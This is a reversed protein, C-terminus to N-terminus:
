YENYNKLYPKIDLKAANYLINALKGNGFFDFVDSIYTTEKTYNDLDDQRLAIIKCYYVVEHNSNEVVKLTIIDFVDTKFKVPMDFEDYYQTLSFTYTKEM